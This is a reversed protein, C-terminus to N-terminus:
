AALKITVFELFSPILSCNTVKTHLEQQPTIGARGFDSFWSNARLSPSVDKGEKCVFSVSALRNVACTVDQYTSRSSYLLSEELTLANKYPLVFLKSSFDMNAACTVSRVFPTAKFDLHAIM